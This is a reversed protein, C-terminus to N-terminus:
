GTTGDSVGSALPFSARVHNWGCARCVEVLYCTVSEARGRLRAVDGATVLCRGSRPLGPGFAFTVVVLQPDDCIPCPEDLVRSCAEAVRRLEPQADCVEHRPRRGRRVDDIVGQRALRYSVAGRPALARLPGPAVIACPVSPDPGSGPPGAASLGFAGEV